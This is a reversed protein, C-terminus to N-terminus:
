KRIFKKGKGTKELKEIKKLIAFEITSFDHPLILTEIINGLFSENQSLSFEIQKNTGILLFRANNNRGFERFVFRIDLGIYESINVPLIILVEDDTIDWNKRFEKWTSVKEISEDDIFLNRFPIFYNYFIKKM